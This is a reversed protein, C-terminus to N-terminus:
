LYYNFGVGLSYFMRTNVTSSPSIHIEAGVKAVIDLTINSLKPRNSLASEFRIPIYPRLFYSTQIQRSESNGYLFNSTNYSGNTGQQPSPAPSISYVGGDQYYLGTEYNITQRVQAAYSISGDAAIGIGTSLSPWGEGTYILYEAFLGVNKVKTSYETSTSYLTDRYFTEVLGTSSTLVVTDQRARYRENFEFSFTSGSNYHAGVNFRTRKFPGMRESSPGKFMFSAGLGNRSYMRPSTHNMAESGELFFEPSDLMSKFESYSISSEDFFNIAGEIGFGILKRNDDTQSWGLVPVLLFVGFLFKM